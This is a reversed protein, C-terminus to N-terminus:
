KSEGKYLMLNKIMRARLRNKPLMGLVARRLALRSDRAMVRALTEEKQGGPYGSYRRYIKGEMKKGTVRIADTNYVLVRNGSLRNPVFSPANKGRLTMAIETALRGLIKNKADITYEM